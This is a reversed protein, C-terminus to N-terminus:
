AACVAAYSDVLVGLYDVGARSKCYKWEVAGCILVKVSYGGREENKIIELVGCCAQGNEEVAYM